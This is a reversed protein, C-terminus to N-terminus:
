QRVKTSMGSIRTPMRRQTPRALQPIRGTTRDAPDPDAVLIGALHRGDAAASAAVRALQEATVAGATVGLVTATTRMLGAVQPSQGDVVAVVIALGPHSPPVLDDPDAAVLGLKHSRTRPLTGAACAARLAAVTTADQQLGIVLSTPIGRSATFVALQPGLALSKPDSSLSLVTLSSTGASANVSVLEAQELYHLAKRLRWADAASPEYEELLRTWGVPDPPHGVAFSALVPIGIADAIDDRRRLRQDRRSFGLVGTTGLLVGVLLGLAAILLVHIPLPTGRADEAAELLHPQIKPVPSNDSNAFSIYSNAVANAAQEAQAATEGQATISIITPAPRKVQLHSSLADTSTTPKLKPVARALVPDSGVIVAQTPADPITSPLVVLATSSVLPPYRVAYGAGALIGLVATAAVVYKRRWLLHMTRRVDLPQDSM